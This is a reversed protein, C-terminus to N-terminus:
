PDCMILMRWGDQGQIMAPYEYGKEAIPHYRGPTIHQQHPSSDKAIGCFVAASEFCSEATPCWVLHTDDQDPVSVESAQIAFADRPAAVAPVKAACGVVSLLAPLIIGLKM